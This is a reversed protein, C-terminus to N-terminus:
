PSKKIAKIFEAIAQAFISSTLCLMVIVIILIAIWEWAGYNPM